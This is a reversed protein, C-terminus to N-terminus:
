NRHADSLFVGDSFDKMKIYRTGGSTDGSSGSSGLGKDLDTIIAQLSTHMHMGHHCFVRRMDDLSVLM